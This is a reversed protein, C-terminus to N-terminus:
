KVELPDMGYRNPGTTGKKFTLVMGLYINYLPILSLWYNSGPRDLDHLRKVVPYSVLWVNLILGIVGTAVGLQEPASEPFLLVLLIALAVKAGVLVCGVAVSVWFFKKRNYRGEFSFFSM